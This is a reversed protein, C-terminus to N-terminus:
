YNIEFYGNRLVTEKKGKLLDGIVSSGALEATIELNGKIIGGSNDTVTLKGKKIIYPLNTYFDAWIVSIKFEESFIFGKELNLALVKVEAPTKVGDWQCKILGYDATGGMAMYYQDNLDTQLGFTITDGDIECRLFGAGFKMQSYLPNINFFGFVLATLLIFKIIKKM